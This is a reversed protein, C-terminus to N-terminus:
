TPTEQKSRSAGGGQVKGDKMENVALDSGIVTGVMLMTEKVGM